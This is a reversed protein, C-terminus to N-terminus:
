RAQNFLRRCSKEFERLLHDRFRGTEFWMTVNEFQEKYLEFLEAKKLAGFKLGGGAKSALKEPSLAALVQRMIEAGSEQFGQHAILFAEKIQDLHEPLTQSRGTGSMESAIVTRITASAEARGKLNQEVTQTLENLTDFLRNLSSSLQELVEPSSMEKASFREGLLLQLLRDLVEPDEVSQKRPRDLAGAVAERITGLWSLQEEQDLHGLERALFGEIREKARDPDSRYLKRVEGALSKAKAEDVGSGERQM